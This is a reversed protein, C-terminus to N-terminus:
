SVLPLSPSPDRYELMASNLCQFLMNDTTINIPGKLEERVSSRWPAKAEDNDSFLLLLLM